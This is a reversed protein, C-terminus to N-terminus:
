EPQRIMDPHLACGRLIQRQQRRDGVTVGSSGVTEIVLSHVAQDFPTPQHPMAGAM